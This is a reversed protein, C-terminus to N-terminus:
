SSSAESVAVGTLSGSSRYVVFRPRAKLVIHKEVEGPYRQGSHEEEAEEGSM